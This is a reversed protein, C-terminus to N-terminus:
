CVLNGGLATTSLPDTSGTLTAFYLDSVSTDLLSGSTTSTPSTTTATVDTWNGTSSTPTATGSTTTDVGVTASTSLVSGSGSILSSGASASLSLSAIGLNLNIGLLGVNASPTTPEMPTGGGCSLPNGNATQTNPLPVTPSAGTGLNLTLAYSGTSFATTDAGRVMVYYTAGPTVSLNKVALTAGDELAGAPLSFSASGISMGSANYVTVKPTLLSLGTSQVTVTMTSASNAPATFKFYEAQGITTLDLGTVLSTLSSADITSTITAAASFTGNTHGNSNYADYSRASGGSYVSRIGAIDDSGLATFAGNYTGYMVASSCGSCALSLAHGIEHMAVTFLDYTSGINFCYGTNFAVDGAVSYNNVSPPYFTSALWNCSSGFAYGGIRIDGFRSNGQQYAGSGASEGDDGVLSFNLNTQQAWQQAAKLIINQWQSASTVGPIQSFASFLNSTLYGGNAQCMVTGDPVFSLTVLNPHPWANGSAVYPTIRSELSEVGLRASTHPRHRRARRSAAPWFRM